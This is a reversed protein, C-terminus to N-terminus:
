CSLALLAARAIQIAEEDLRVYLLMGRPSLPYNFGKGQEEEEEGEEDEEGEEEEEDEEEELDEGDADEPSSSEDDGEVEDKLRRLVPERSEPFGNVSLWPPGFPVPEPEPRPPTPAPAIPGRVRATSTGAQLASPQPQPLGRQRVETDMTAQPGQTASRLDRPPTEARAEEPIIAQAASPLTRRPVAAHSARLSSPTAKALQLAKLTLKIRRRPRVPIDSQPTPNTPNTIHAANPFKHKLPQYARPM